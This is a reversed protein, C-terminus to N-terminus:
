SMGRLALERRIIQATLDNLRAQLVVRRHSHPALGSMRVAIDHRRARLGDIARLGQWHLLPPPSVIQLARIM